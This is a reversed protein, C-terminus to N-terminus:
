LRGSIDRNGNDLLDICHGRDITQEYFGRALILLWYRQDITSLLSYLGIIPNCQLLNIADFVEILEPRFTDSSSLTFEQLNTEQGDDSKWVYYLTTVDSFTNQLIQAKSRGGSEAQFTWGQVVDIFVVHSCLIRRIARWDRDSSHVHSKRLAIREKCVQILRDVLQEVDERREDYQMHERRRLEQERQNSMWRPIRGVQEFTLSSESQEIQQRTSMKGTDLQYVVSSGTLHIRQM